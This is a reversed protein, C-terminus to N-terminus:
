KLMDVHVRCGRVWNINRFDYPPNGVISNANRAKKRIKIIKELKQSGFIVVYFYSSIQV